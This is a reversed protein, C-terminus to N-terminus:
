DETHVNGLFESKSHDNNEVLSGRPLQYLLTDSGMSEFKLYTILSLLCLILAILIGKRTKIHIINDLRKELNTEYFETMLVNRSENNFRASNILTLGYLRQEKKSGNQMVIEDCHLECDESIKRSMLYVLPNFWYLCRLFAMIFKILNDKNKVHILEHKLIWYLENVNYSDTLLIYPKFLGLVCPSAIDYSFRLIVNQKVNLETKLDEFISNIEIIDVEESLDILLNKEKNYKVFINVLLYLTVFLWLISLLFLLTNDPKQTNSYTNLKNIIAKNNIFIPYSFTFFLMKFIVVLWIYYNFRKNFIRFISIKLLLFICIIASSVITANLLSKFIQIM